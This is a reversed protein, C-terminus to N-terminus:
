IQITVRPRLREGRKKKQSNSRGEEEEKRKLGGGLKIPENRKEQNGVSVCTAKGKKGRRRIFDRAASRTRERKSNVAGVILVSSSKKKKSRQCCKPSSNNRKGTVVNSCIV